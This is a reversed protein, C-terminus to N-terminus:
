RRDMPRTGGRISPPAMTTSPNLPPQTREQMTKQPTTPPPAASTTPTPATSTAAPQAAPKEPAPAAVQLKKTDPAAASALGYPGGDTFPTKLKCPTGAAPTYIVYQMPIFQFQFTAMMQTQASLGQNHMIFVGSVIVSDYRLRALKRRRALQTSRLIDRYMRLMWVRQDDQYTNLLVGSYSFTPARQGFTYVVFNDSLPEVVQVKEQFSEQVDTLLFDIFGTGGAAGKAAGCLVQALQRSEPPCSKVFNLREQATGIDIYLRAMTERYEADRPGKNIAYKPTAGPYDSFVGLVTQPGNEDIYPPSGFTEFDWGGPIIGPLGM